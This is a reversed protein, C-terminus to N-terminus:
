QIFPRVHALYVVVALTMAIHAMLQYEPHDRSLMVIAVFVIRRFIFIVHYLASAVGSRTKLDIYYHGYSKQIDEDGM